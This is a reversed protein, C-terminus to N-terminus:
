PLFLQLTAEFRDDGAATTLTYRDGCLLDLRKRTTALGIGPMDPRRSPDFSNLAHFLFRDNEKRCSLQIYNPRDAFHSVHKFCNEVLPMLLQPPITFGSLTEFGQATVTLQSGARHKQLEVYNEIFRM